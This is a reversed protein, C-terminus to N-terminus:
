RPDEEEDAPRYDDWHPTWGNYGDSPEDPAFAGGNLNGGLDADWEDGFAPLEILNNSVVKQARALRRRPPVSPSGRRRGRDGQGAGRGHPAARRVSTRRRAAARLAALVRAPRRRRDLDSSRRRGCGCGAGAASPRASPWGACGAPRTPRAASRRGHAGPGRTPTRCSAHAEAPDLTIAYLQAVLRQYNAELHAGFDVRLQAPTPAPADQVVQTGESAPEAASGPSRTQARTRTTSAQSSTTPTCRTATTRAPPPPNRLPCPPTSQAVPHPSARSGPTM